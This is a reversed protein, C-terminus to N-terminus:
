FYAMLLFWNLDIPNTNSNSDSSNKCFLTVVLTKHVFLNSFKWFMTSIITLLRYQIIVKIIANKDFECVPQTLSMDM